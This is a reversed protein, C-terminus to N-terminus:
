RRERLQKRDPTTLAFRLVQHTRGNWTEQEDTPGDFEFGSRQAVRISAHNDEVVTLVIRQAGLDLLWSTLQVVARTAIGRGRAKPLLWYGIQAVDGDSWGDVGCQGLFAGTEMDTIVLSGTPRGSRDFTLWTTECDELQEEAEALTLRRPRHLTYRQIAADM